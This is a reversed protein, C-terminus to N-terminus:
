YGGLNIAGRQYLWWGVVGAIVIVALLVWLWVLGRRRRAQDVRIEAMKGGKTGGTARHRIHALVTAQL